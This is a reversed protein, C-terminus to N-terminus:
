NKRRRRILALAGAGLAFMSAPEPVANNLYVTGIGSGLDDSVGDSMHNNIYIAKINSSGSLVGIFPAHGAVADNTGTALDGGVLNGTPFEADWAGMSATFDGFANSQTYAGAGMVGHAFVIAVVTNGNLYSNQNFYLHEGSGLIGNWSAGQTRIQSDLGQVQGSFDNTTKVTFSLGLHTSGTMGSASMNTFDAGFQGWDIWDNAGISGPSTAM